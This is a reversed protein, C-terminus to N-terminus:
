LTESSSRARRWRFREQCWFKEKAFVDKVCLSGGKHPLFRKQAPKRSLPCSCNESDLLGGERPTADAARVDLANSIRRVAGALRALLRPVQRTFARHLPRHAPHEQPRSLAALSPHRARRQGTQIWVCAAAHSSATLFADPRGQRAAPHSPP